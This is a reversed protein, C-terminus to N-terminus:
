VVYSALSLLLVPYLTGGESTGFFNSFAGYNQNAKFYPMIVIRWNFMVLAKNETCVSWTYLAALEQASSVASM